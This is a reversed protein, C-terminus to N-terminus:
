KEEKLKIEAESIIHDLSEADSLTETKSIFGLLAERKNGEVIKFTGMLSCIKEIEEETYRNIRAEMDDLMIKMKEGVTPEVHEASKAVNKGFPDKYESM